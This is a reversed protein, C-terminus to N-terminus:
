IFFDYIDDQAQDDAFESMFAHKLMFKPLKLSSLRSMFHAPAGSDDPDTEHNKEEPKSQKSLPRLVGQHSVHWAGVSSFLHVRLPLKSLSVKSPM